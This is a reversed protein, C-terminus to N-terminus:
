KEEKPVIIGTIVKDGENVGTKIETNVGDTIGKKVTVKKPTGKKLIFVSSDKSSKTINANKKGPGFQEAKKQEEEMIQFRLASNPVTLVNEVNKMILSVNATMGPMLLNDENVLRVIVVYSVVNNEETPSLRIQTVKGKFEIEPHADVSFIADQGVAVGGIDAEDVNVEVQMQKLDRAIEAISPTQYSAAVTQGREVNKAVVVGDVPSYIRTYGLNLNAKTLTATSQMVKAKAMQLTALSSALTEEDADLDSKSVLDKKALIQTRKYNKQAKRYQAQAGILSAESELLAAKAQEVEAKQSESEIEAILDGKKVISNYDIYIESITGSIKTGVDITEVADLTGTAQIVSQM